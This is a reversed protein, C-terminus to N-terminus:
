YHLTFDPEYIKWNPTFRLHKGFVSYDFNEVVMFKVRIINLSEWVNVSTVCHNTVLNNYNKFKLLWLHPVSLEKTTPKGNSDLYVIEVEDLPMEITFFEYNTANKNEFWLVVDGVDKLTTKYNNM